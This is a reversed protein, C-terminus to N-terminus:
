PQGGPNEHGEHVGERRQGGSGPGEHDEGHQREVWVPQDGSDSTFNVPPQVGQRDASSLGARGEVVVGPGQVDGTCRLCPAISMPTVAFRLPEIAPM